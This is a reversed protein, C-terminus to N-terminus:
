QKKFKNVLWKLGFYIACLVCLIGIVDFLGALLYCVCYVGYWFGGKLELVELFKNNEDTYIRSMVLNDKAKDEGIIMTNMQLYKLILIETEKNQSYLALTDGKSVMFGDIRESYTSDTVMRYFTFQDDDFNFRLFEGNDFKTTRWDGNITKVELGLADALPSFGALICIFIGILSGIISCSRGM